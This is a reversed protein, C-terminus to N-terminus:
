GGGTPSLILLESGDKIETETAKLGNLGVGNLALVFYPRIEGTEPNFVKDIFSKGYDKALIHLVDIVRVQGECEVTIEQKGLIEVLPGRSVRVKVQM